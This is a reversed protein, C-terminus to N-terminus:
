PVPILSLEMLPSGLGVIVPKKASPNTRCSSCSYSSAVKLAQQGFFRRSAELAGQSGPDMGNRLVKLMALEDQPTYVLEVEKGEGAEPAM